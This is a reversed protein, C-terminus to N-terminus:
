PNAIGPSYYRFYDVDRVIRGPVLLLEVIPRIQQVFRNAGGWGSRPVYILDGDLLAM